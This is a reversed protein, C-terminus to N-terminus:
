DSSDITYYYGCDRCTYGNYCRGLNVVDLNKHQCIHGAYFKVNEYGNKKQEDTQKNYPIYISGMAVYSGNPFWFVNLNSIHQEDKEYCPYRTEHAYLCLSHFRREFEEITIESMNPPYYNYRGITEENLKGQIWSETKPENKTLYEMCSVHNRFMIYTKM